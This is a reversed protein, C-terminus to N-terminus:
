EKVIDCFEAFSVTDPQVPEVPAEYPRPMLAIPDKIPDEFNANYFLRILRNIADVVSATMEATNDWGM